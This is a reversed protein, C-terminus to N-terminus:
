EPADSSTKRGVRAKRSRREGVRGVRASNRKAEGDITKCTRSWRVGSEAERTQSEPEHERGGDNTEGMRGESREAIERKKWIFPAIYCFLREKTVSRALTNRELCVRKAYHRTLACRAGIAAREASCTMREDTVLRGKKQFYRGFARRHDCRYVRFPCIRLPLPSFLLAFTSFLSPFPLFLALFLFLSVPAYVPSVFPPQACFWSPSSAFRTLLHLLFLAMRLALLLPAFLASSLPHSLASFPPYFSRRPVSPPWRQWQLKSFPPPVTCHVRYINM